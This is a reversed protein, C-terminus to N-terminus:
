STVTQAELTDALDDKGLARLEKATKLGVELTFFAILWIRMSVDGCAKALAEQQIVNM